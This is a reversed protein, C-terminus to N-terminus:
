DKELLTHTNQTIASCQRCQSMIIGLADGIMENNNQELYMKALEAQMSISNLANNMKHLAEKLRGKESEDLPM